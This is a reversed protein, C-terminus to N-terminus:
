LVKKSEFFSPIKSQASYRSAHTCDRKEERKMSNFFSTIKSQDCIGPDSANDLDECGKWSERIWWELDEQPDRRRGEKELDDQARVDLCERRIQRAIRGMKIEWGLNWAGNWYVYCSFMVFLIGQGHYLAKMFDDSTDASSDDSFGAYAMCAVAMFLVLMRWMELTQRRWSYVVGVSLTKRYPNALYEVFRIQSEKALDAPQRLFRFRATEGFIKFTSALNDAWKEATRENINHPVELDISIYGRVLNVVCPIIMFTCLIISETPM